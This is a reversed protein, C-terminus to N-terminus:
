AARAFDGHLETAAKCYAMHALEPTDYYGLFRRKGNFTIRAGWRNETKVWCVGKYGSTNNRPAKANWANEATTAIRLNDFANNLGNGDAHDILRPYPDEGTKLLWCLRHAFYTTGRITVKIYPVRSNREIYGAMSGASKSGVASKWFLDGNDCDYKLLTDVGAFSPLQLLPLMVRIHPHDHGQRQQACPHGFKAAAHM